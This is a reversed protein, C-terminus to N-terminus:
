QSRHADASPADMEVKIVWHRKTTVPPVHIKVKISKNALGEKTDLTDKIHLPENIHLLYNIHLTENLLLM